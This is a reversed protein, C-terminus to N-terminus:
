AFSKDQDGFQSVCPIFETIIFKNEISLTYRNGSSVTLTTRNYLPFKLPFLNTGKLNIDSLSYETIFLSTIFLNSQVTNSKDNKRRIFKYISMICDM